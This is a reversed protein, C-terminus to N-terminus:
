RLQKIQEEYNENQCIYSGSVIMDVMEKVNFITEENIGGDISIKFSYEKRYSSLEKLKPLISKLFAQGGLGPVVSMILIFDVEKLFPIVLNIPTDPNLAIGVKIKAKKLVKIWKSVEKTAELHFTIMEPKQKIAEMIQIDLDNTMLHIDLPKQSKKLLKTLEKWNLNNQEVFSGDMLDVHLYDASTQNIREITEEKSYKSKLYSVAIKM